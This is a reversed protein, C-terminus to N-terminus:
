TASLSKPPFQSTRKFAQPGSRAFAHLTDHWDVPPGRDRARLSLEFATPTIGAKHLDHAFISGAEGCGILAVSTM